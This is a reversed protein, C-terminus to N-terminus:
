SMWLYEFAFNEGVTSSFSATATTGRCIVTPHYNKNIFEEAVHLM